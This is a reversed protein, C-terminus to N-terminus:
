RCDARRVHAISASKKWARLHWNGTSSCCLATNIGAYMCMHEVM